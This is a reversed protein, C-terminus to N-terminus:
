GRHQYRDVFGDLARVAGVIHYLSSARAPGPVPSGRDDIAEHWLGAIATDFYRRLGVAAETAHQVAVERESGTSLEAIAINAKLRETQPWLRSHHEPASTDDWCGDLVLGTTENMGHEEALTTLRRAMPSVETHRGRAVGWRWLLWTWEFHHGPEFFCRVGEDAPNWDRHFLEHITGTRLDVFRTTALEVIDDAHRRWGAGDDVAEWELLAELLHMHSDSKLPECPPRAEEFGGIPHKWGTELTTIVTRAIDTVTRRRYGLRAATALGLLVFAHDYLDAEPRVSEGRPGVAARISGSDTFCKELLFDLGHEVLSASTPQDQWGLEGATAFVYIQRAVLRTRRPEDVVSADQALKEHFGGSCRDVGRESWVPLAHVRMWETLAALEKELAAFHGTESLASVTM